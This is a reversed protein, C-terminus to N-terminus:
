KLLQYDNVHDVFEWGKICGSSETGHEGPDAVPNDEAVHIWKVLECGTETLDTEFM